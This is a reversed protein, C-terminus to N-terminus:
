EGAKKMKSRQQRLNKYQISCYFQSDKFKNWLLVMYWIVNVHVQTSRKFLADMPDEKKHLSPFQM